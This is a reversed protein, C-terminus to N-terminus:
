RCSILKGILKQELREMIIRDRKRKHTYGLLHLLGHILFREVREGKAAIYDPALFIEGLYRKSGPIPFHSVPFSLVNTPKNKKRFRRNLSKLLNDPALYVELFVANQHLARLMRKLFLALRREL